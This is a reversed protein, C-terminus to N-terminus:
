EVEFMEISYWLGDAMFFQIMERRLSQPLASYAHAFTKPFEHPMKAYKVFDGVAEEADKVSTGLYLLRVSDVHYIKIDRVFNGVAEEAETVSARRVSDVHHSPGNKSTSYIIM